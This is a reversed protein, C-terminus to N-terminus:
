KEPERESVCESPPAAVPLSDRAALEESPTEKAARRNAGERWFGIAAVGLFLSTVQSVTLGRSKERLGRIAPSIRFNHFRAPTQIENRRRARALRAFSRSPAGFGDAVPCEFGSM